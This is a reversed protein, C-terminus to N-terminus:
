RRLRREAERLRAPSGIDLWLADGIDYAEIRAGAGALRQYPVMISFVGRETIRDLLAPAIVHIGCFALERVAGRPPRAARVVDAAVDRRGQLGNEDFCLYRSAERRNVALTALAGSARHAEVMASLAFEAIVDTNRLLIPADRRLLPAAHLLGGGTELAREPERSFLVEVGFSGADEVFAEILEAHHHVNIIIRDAGAAIVHRAARLLMPEGAVPVLAKPIRDTLPRLRSGAGAAFLLADM